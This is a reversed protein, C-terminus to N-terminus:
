SFDAFYEEILDTLKSLNHADRFDGAEVQGWISHVESSYDRPNSQRLIWNLRDCCELFNQYSDIPSMRM